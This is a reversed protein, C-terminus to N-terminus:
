PADSGIEDIQRDIMALLIKLESAGIQRWGALQPLIPRGPPFM